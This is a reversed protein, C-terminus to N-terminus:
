WQEGDESWDMNDYVTKPNDIGHKRAVMENDGYSFYGSWKTDAKNIWYTDSRKPCFYYPAVGELGDRLGDRDADPTHNQALDKHKLEHAMTTACTYIGRTNQSLNISLVPVWVDRVSVRRTGDPKDGSTLFGDTGASICIQNPLGMGKTYFGNAWTDDGTRETQCIGNNGTHIENGCIKDDGLNRSDLVGNAGPRICVVNARGHGQPIEQVDTTDFRKTNCVGDAGTSIYAHYYWNLLTYNYSNNDAGCTCLYVTNGITTGCKGPEEHYSFQDIDEIVDGKKWYYFWNPAPDADPNTKAYKDFFLDITVDEQHLITTNRKIFITVYNNLGWQANDDPMSEMVIYGHDKFANPDTKHTTGDLRFEASCQV